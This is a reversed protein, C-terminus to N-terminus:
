PAVAGTSATATATATTMGKQYTGSQDHCVLCDVNEPDGFDFTDDAYGFGTHCQTCRGENTPVAICFNNILDNKGHDEGEFGTINSAVGQQDAPYIEIISDM